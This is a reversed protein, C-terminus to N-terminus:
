VWRVGEAKVQRSALKFFSFFFLNFSGVRQRIKHKYIGMHIHTYTYVYILSDDSKYRLTYKKGNKYKDSM